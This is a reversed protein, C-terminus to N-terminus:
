FDVGKDTPSPLILSLTDAKDGGPGYFSRYLHLDTLVAKM